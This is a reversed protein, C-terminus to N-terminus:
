KAANRSPLKWERGFVVEVWANEEANPNGPFKLDLEGTSVVVIKNKQEHNMSVQLLSAIVAARRGGFNWNREMRAQKGPPYANQADVESAHGIIFIHPYQSQLTQYERIIKNVQARTRNINKPQWYPNELFEGADFKTSSAKFNGGGLEENKKKEKNYLHASVLSIVMLLALLSLILDTGPGFQNSDEALFNSLRRM